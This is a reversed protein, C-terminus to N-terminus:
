YNNKTTDISEKYQPYKLLVKTVLITDDVNKYEPYKSKIKAAFEAITLKTSDIRTFGKPLPPTTDVVTSDVASTVSQYSSNPYGLDIFNGFLGIFEHGREKYISLVFLNSTRRLGSYSDKGRYAKFASVSPNTIIFLLLVAGTILWKKKITPLTMRHTVIAM